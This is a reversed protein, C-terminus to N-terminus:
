EETYGRLTIFLTLEVNCVKQTVSRGCRGLLLDPHVPDNQSAQHLGVRHALAPLVKQPMAGKMQAKEAPLSEGTLAAQQVYLDTAQVLRADAPVLEGATLRVIDSPVLERRPLELWTGDRLVSATPAVNARLKEVSNQSRFTQVFNLINSLLVIVIIISADVPDGLLASVVSAVLLIAILPNLFLRLFQVVPSTRKLGTMDNPGYRGLRKRAEAGTLGQESSELQAFLKKLPVTQTGAKEEGPPAQTAQSPFAGQM